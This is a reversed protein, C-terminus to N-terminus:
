AAPAKPQSFWYSIVQGYGAALAGAFVSLVNSQDQHPPFLIWAIVIGGFGLVVVASIVIQATKDTTM